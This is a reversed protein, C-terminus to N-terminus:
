IGIIRLMRLLEQTEPPFNLIYEDISEFSNKNNEM